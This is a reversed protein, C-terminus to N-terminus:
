RREYVTIRGNVEYFAVPNKLRFGCFTPDLQCGAGIAICLKEHDTLEALPKTSAAVATEAIQNLKEQRADM